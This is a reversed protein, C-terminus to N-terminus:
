GMTLVGFIADYCSGWETKRRELKAKEEERKRERGREEERERGRM